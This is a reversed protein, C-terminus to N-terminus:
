KSEEKATITEFFSQELSIKMPKVARISVKKIRLLDIVDNVKEPDALEVIMSKTSISIRKGIHEPIDVLNHGIDAEIEYHSKRSTLEEVTGIRAVTGNQLIAV